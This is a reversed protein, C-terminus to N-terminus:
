IGSERDNSFSGQITIYGGDFIMINKTIQEAFKSTMILTPLGGGM